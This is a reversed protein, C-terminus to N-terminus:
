PAGEVVWDEQEAALFEGTSLVEMARKADPHDSLRRAAATGDKRLGLVVVEEPRFADVLYPSHSTAIIQLGPTSQVLTRLNEVLQRQARPHLAREIDDLLVVAPVKEARAATLVGLVLLTGQSVEHAPIDVSGLFDFRLEAGELTVEHPIWTANDEDYQHQTETFPVKKIRLTDVTPVIRRLDREIETFLPEDFLRLISLVGALGSGDPALRTTKEGVQVRSPAALRNPDLHLQTAAGVLRGLIHRVEKGALLGESSKESGGKGGVEWQCESIRGNSGTSMRRSIYGEASRGLELTVALREADRRLFREGEEIPVPRQGSRLNTVYRIADLVSTKGVSNPGVLVTLPSLPIETRLHTKFNELIIKEIPM